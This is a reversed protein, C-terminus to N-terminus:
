PNEKKQIIPKIRNDKQAYEQLIEGSNDTSGDNVLIIEQTIESKILLSKLCRELTRAGNHVPIIISLDFGIPTKTNNITEKM